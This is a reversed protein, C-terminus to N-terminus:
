RGWRAEREDFKKEYEAWASDPKAPANEEDWVSSWRKGPELAVPRDPERLMFYTVTFVHATYPAALAALLTVAIWLSVANMGPALLGVPLTVLFVLLSAGLRAKYVNWGNGRVLARSRSLADRATGDELMAVPVALGWRTALIVGPIVLLLSAFAIGVAMLLSLCVLKWLRSSARALAEFATVDDDGDEHLGRVVEVLAGQILAGGFVTGGLAILAPAVGHEHAMTVRLLNVVGLVVLALFFTRAFLRKYLRWAEGLIAGAGIPARAPTAQQQFALGSM